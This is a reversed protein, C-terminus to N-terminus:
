SPNQVMSYTLLYTLLYVTVKLHGCLYFDLATFEQSMPYGGMLGRRGMWHDPFQRDLWRSVCSEYGICPPKQIMRYLDAVNVSV